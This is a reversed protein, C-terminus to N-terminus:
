GLPLVGDIDHRFTGSDLWNRIKLVTNKAYRPVLERHETNTTTLLDNLLLLNRQAVFTEFDDDTVRPLPAVSAYGERFAEVLDHQPRLYYTSVALDQVPAGLGSDDFDFVALRGRNWKVNWEHLDAHIPRLPGRVVRSTVEGVIDVARRLISIEAADLDLHALDLRDPMNWFVDTLAELDSGAPLRWQQAHDHLTAMARGMAIAKDVTPAHGVDRGPLWSFVVAHVDRDLEVSPLTTCMEGSTNALPSAVWLDTDRALAAIWAVEAAVNERSRRSNVNLRLAFRRGDRADVRFTTNFGHELLTLKELGIPYRALADGALARLRAVQAQRGLEKFGKSEAVTVLKCISTRPKGRGWGAPRRV